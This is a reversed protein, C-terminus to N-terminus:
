NNSFCNPCPPLHPYLGGRQKVLGVSIGFCVSFATSLDKEQTAICFLLLTFYFCLSNWLRDYALAGSGVSTCEWFAVTTQLLLEMLEICLLLITNISFIQTRNEHSQPSCVFFCDFLICHFFSLFYVHNPFFNQVTNILLVKSSEVSEAVWM